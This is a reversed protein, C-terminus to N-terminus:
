KSKAVPTYFEAAACWQAIQKAGAVYHHQGIVNAGYTIGWDSNLRGIRYVRFTEAPGQAEWENSATREWKLKM